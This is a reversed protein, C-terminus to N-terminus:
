FLLHYSCIVEMLFASGRTEDEGCPVVNSPLADPEIKSIRPRKSSCLVVVEASPKEEMLPSNTLDIVECRQYMSNKRGPTLMNKEINLKLGQKKMSPVLSSRNAPVIEKRQTTTGRKVELVSSLSKDNRCLLDMTTNQFHLIWSNFFNQSLSAFIILYWQKFSYLTVMGMFFCCSIVQVMLIKELYNEDVSQANTIDNIKGVFGTYM